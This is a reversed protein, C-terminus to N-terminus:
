PATTAPPGRRRGRGAAVATELAYLPNGRGVDHLRGVLPAAADGLDGVADDILANLNEASLGQLEM